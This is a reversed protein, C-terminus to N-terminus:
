LLLYLYCVLGFVHHNTSLITYIIIIIKYYIIYFSDTVYKRPNSHLGNYGTRGTDRDGGGGWFAGGSRQYIKSWRVIIILFNYYMFLVAIPNNIKLM